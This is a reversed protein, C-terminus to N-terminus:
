KKRLTSAETIKNCCYATPVMSRACMSHRMAMRNCPRLLRNSATPYCPIPNTSTNSHPTINSHSMCAQPYCPAQTYTICRTSQAWYDQTTWCGHASQTTQKLHIWINMSCENGSIDVPICVVYLPHIASITNGCRMRPWLMYDYTTDAYPHASWLGLSSTTGPAM